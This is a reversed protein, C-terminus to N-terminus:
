QTKAPAVPGSPVLDIVTIEPPSLFRVPPGWTGTGRSTYLRGGEELQILGLPFPYRLRVLYDFPFIQGGHTHGSLQLDFRKGAASIVPRHKLLLGFAQDPVRRLLDAEGPTQGGNSGRGPDDDVGAIILGPDVMVTENELLTFGAERIFTRARELGYYYEHNGLVAFKGLPAKLDRLATTVSPRNPVKGDVLDGTSVVLDPKAAQVAQLVPTLRGPYTMPGLHLDSIQVVRLRKTGSALKVGTLTIHESRIQRAELAGYAMVAWAAMAVLGLSRRRSLMIATADAGFLGQIARILLHYGDVPLALCIFIFVFGIWLNGTWAMVLASLWHGQAELVRAQIPALILFLLVCALLGYRVGHLYFARRVKILLYLHILGFVCFYLALLIVLRSM